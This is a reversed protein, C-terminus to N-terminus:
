IPLAYSCDFGKMEKMLDKELLQNISIIFVLSQNEIVTNVSYEM